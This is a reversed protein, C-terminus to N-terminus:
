QREVFLMLIGPYKIAKTGLVSLEFLDMGITADRVESSAGVGTIMRGDKYAMM